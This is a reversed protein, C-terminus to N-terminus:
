DPSRDQVLTANDAIVERVRVSFPGNSARAIVFGFTKLLGLINNAVAQLRSLLHASAMLLMRLAQADMSKIAVERFWGTRM